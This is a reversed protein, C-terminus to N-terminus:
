FIDYWRRSCKKCQLGEEIAPGLKTFLENFSSTYFTPDDQKFFYLQQGVGTELFSRQGSAASLVAVWFTTFDEPNEISSRCFDLGVADGAFHQDCQRLLDIERQYAQKEKEALCNVRAQTFYNPHQDVWTDFTEPNLIAAKYPEALGSTIDCNDDCATSTMTAAAGLAIVAMRAFAGISGFKM